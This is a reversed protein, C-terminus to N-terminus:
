NIINRVELRERVAKGSRDNGEKKNRKNKKTGKGRLSRGIQAELDQYQCHYGIQKM